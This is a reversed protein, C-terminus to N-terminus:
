PTYDEDITLLIKDVVFGDERMWLDITHLGPSPIYITARPQTSSMTRNSWDFETFFKHMKDSTWSIRGNLGVHISDDTETAGLGKVWVYHTGAKVFNVEYSLRPSEVVAEGGNYLLNYNPLAILAKVDQDALYEGWYHVSGNYKAMYDEVEIFVIGAEDDTQQFPGPSLVEITVTGASKSVLQGDNVIFTFSDSGSGVSPKYTFAGTSPNTIVVDGLLSSDVISYVLNDNNVDRGQLRGEYLKNAIVELQQNHAVPAENVPGLNDIVVDISYEGKNGANDVAILSLKKSGDGTENLTDISVVINSIDNVEYKKGAFFVTVSEIGNDDNAIGAVTLEGKVVEGDVPTTLVVQPLSNDVTFKVKRNTFNDLENAAVISIEHEGDVLVTTDLTISYEDQTKSAQIAKKGDLVFDVEKLGHKDYIVASLTVEGSVLSHEINTLGLITPGDLVVQNGPVDDDGSSFDNGNDSQSNENRRSVDNYIARLSSSSGFNNVAQLLDEKVVSTQNVASEALTIMQDAIDYRYTHSDLEVIGLRINGNSGEGDLMGDHKIDDYATQAFFISNYLSHVVSQNQESLWKTWQSVAATAFGYRLSNSLQEVADTQATIDQPLTTTIDVGVETSFVSNAQSVAQTVPMGNLVLYEILGAALHTYYSVVANISQGSVYHTVSSLVQNDDLIVVAGSAEEIYSGGSVEVLIPRDKSVISISYKGFKDTIGSGLLDGKIGEDFTYIEVKGYFIAADFAVGSVVGSPRDSPLGGGGGGCGVLGALIFTFALVKANNFILICQCSLSTWIGIMLPHFVNPM